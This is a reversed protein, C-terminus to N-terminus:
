QNCFSIVDEAVHRGGAGSVQRRPRQLFDRL